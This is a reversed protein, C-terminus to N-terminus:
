DDGFEAELERFGDMIDNLWGEIVKLTIVEKTHYYLRYKGDDRKRWVNVGGKKRLTAVLQGGNESAVVPETYVRWITNEM